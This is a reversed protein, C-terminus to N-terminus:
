EWQSKMEARATSHTRKNLTHYTCKFVRLSTSISECKLIVCGSFPCLRAKMGLESMGSVSNKIAKSWRARHCSCPPNSNWFYCSKQARHCSSHKSPWPSVSITQVVFHIPHHPIPRSFWIPVQNISSLHVSYNLTSWYIHSAPCVPRSSRVHNGRLIPSLNPHASSRLPNGAGAAPLPSSQHLLLYDKGIKKKFIQSLVPFQTM